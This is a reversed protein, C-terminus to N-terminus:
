TGLIEVLGLESGLEEGDDLGVDDLGDDVLGVNIGIDNLGINMGLGMDVAGTGVVIRGIRLGDKGGNNPGTSGKM